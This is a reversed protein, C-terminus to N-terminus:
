AYVLMSVIVANKDLMQEWVSIAVTTCSFIFNYAISILAPIECYVTSFARISLEFAGICVTSVTNLCVTQTRYNFILSAVSAELIVCLGDESLKGAEFALLARSMLDDSTEFNSRQVGCALLFAKETIKGDMLMEYAKSFPIRYM